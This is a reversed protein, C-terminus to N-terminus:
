PKAPSVTFNAINDAWNEGQYHTVGNVTTTTAPGYFLGDPGPSMLLFSDPNQVAIAAVREERLNEDLAADTLNDRSAPPPTLVFPANDNADYTDNAKTDPDGTAPRRAQYYVIPYGFADVFVPWDDNGTTMDYTGGSLDAVRKDDMNSIEVYPGYRM